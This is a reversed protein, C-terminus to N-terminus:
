WRIFVVGSREARSGPCHLGVTLQELLPLCGAGPFQGLELGARWGGAGAQRRCCLVALPSLHCHGAETGPLQPHPAWEQRNVILLAEPGNRLWSTGRDGPKLSAVPTGDNGRELSILAAEKGARFDWPVGQLSWWGGM